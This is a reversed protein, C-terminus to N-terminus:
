LILDNTERKFWESRTFWIDHWSTVKSLDMHHSVLAEQWFGLSHAMESASAVAGTLWESSLLGLGGAYWFRMFSGLCSGGLTGWGCFGHSLYINATKLEYIQPYNTISGYIVLIRLFRCKLDWDQHNVIFFLYGYHCFRSTVLKM